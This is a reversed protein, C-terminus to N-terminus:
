LELAGMGNIDRYRQSYMKSKERRRLQQLRVSQENTFMQKADQMRVGWAQKDLLLDASSFLEHLQADLPTKHPGKTNRVRKPKPKSAKGAGNAAPHTLAAGGCAGILPMPMRVHQPQAPVMVHDAAVGDGAVGESVVIFVGDLASEHCAVAGNIHAIHSTPVTASQSAGVDGGGCDPTATDWELTKPLLTEVVKPLPNGEVPGRGGPLGVAPVRCYPCNVVQSNCGACMLGGHGCGAFRSDINDMQMDDFCIVCEAAEEDTYLNLPPLQDTLEVAPVLENELQVLFESAAASSLGLASTEWEGDPLPVISLQDLLEDAYTSSPQGCSTFNSTLPPLLSQTPPPPPTFQTRVFNANQTCKTQFNTLFTSGNLLLDLNACCAHESETPSAAWGNIISEALHNNNTTPHVPM